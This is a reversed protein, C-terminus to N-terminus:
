SVEGEVEAAPAELWGGPGASGIRPREGPHSAFYGVTAVMRDLPVPRFWWAFMRLKRRSSGLLVPSLAAPWPWGPVKYDGRLSLRLILNSSEDTDASATRIATWPILVSSLGSQIFVGKQTLALYGGRVATILLLALYWGFVLALVLVIVWPWWWEEGDEYFPRILWPLGFIVVTAVSTWIALRARPFRVLLARPADAQGAVEINTM